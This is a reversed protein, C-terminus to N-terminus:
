KPNDGSGITIVAQRFVQFLSVAICSLGVGLSIGSIYRMWMTLKYTNALEVPDAYGGYRILENFSEYDSLFWVTHAICYVGIMVLGLVLLVFQPKAPNKAFLFFTSGCEPCKNGSSAKLDYNCTPCNM